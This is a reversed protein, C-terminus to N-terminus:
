KLHMKQFMYSTSLTKKAYGVFSVELIYPGGSGMGNNYYFGDANTLAGYQTGSPVNIAVVTAGAL